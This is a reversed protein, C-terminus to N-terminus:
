DNLRRRYLFALVLSVAWVFCSLGLEAMGRPYVLLWFGTAVLIFYGALPLIKRSRGGFMLMLILLATMPLLYFFLYTLQYFYVGALTLPKTAVWQQFVAGVHHACTQQNLYVAVGSLIVFPIVWLASCQKGARWQSKAYYLVGLLVAGFLRSCGAAYILVSEYFQLFVYQMSHLAGLLLIFLIGVSLQLLRRSPYVWLFAMFVILFFLSCPTFAEVMAVLIIKVLPSPYPKDLDLEALGFTSWQQLHRITSNTLKGESQIKQYCYNLGRSLAKGTTNVKDFGFWRSNCFFIAPVLYSESQVQTLEQHFLLLASKDKDIVHRHVSIWPFQLALGKFFIEAFSCQLCVSTVFIDVNVVLSHAADFSYWDISSKPAPTASGTLANVFLVCCMVWKLFGRM